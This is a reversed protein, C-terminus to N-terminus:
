AILERVLTTVGSRACAVRSGLENRGLERADAGAFISGRGARRAGECARRGCVRPRVVQWRVNVVVGVVRRRRRGWRKLGGGRVAVRGDERWGSRRVVAAAARVIGKKERCVRL